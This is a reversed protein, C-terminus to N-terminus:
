PKNGPLVTPLVTNIKIFVQYGDNDNITNILDSFENRQVALSLDLGLRNAKPKKVRWTLDGSFFTSEDRMAYYPDELANNQNVGISINASLRDPIFEARTELSYLQRQTNVDDAIFHTEQLQWGLALYYHKSLQMSTNLMLSRTRSQPQWNTHDNLTDRNLAVSWNWTNHSFVTNINASRTSLDNALYGTPTYEDEMEVATAYWNVAPKGLFNFISGAKPEEYEQFGGGLVWQRTFTQAYDSNNDLNNNEDAISANWNWKDSSANVFTRLFEKDAPLFRNAISKFWTGIHQKEVGMSFDIPKTHKTAANFLVLASTAKDDQADFGSNLGDFDYSSQANEVRIRMQKEFFLGDFIVNWAEGENVTSGYINQTDMTAFDAANAKGSIFGSSLVIHALSTNLPQYQWRAGNMRNESDSLGLGGDIGIRQNASASYFEVASHLGPLAVSSSIGRRQYGDSLLDTAAVVHDGMNLAVNGSTSSIFFSPIDAERGTLSLNADDTYAVSANAQTRWNQTALVAAYQGNAQIASDPSLGNNVNESAAVRHSLGVNLQGQLQAERFFATQQVEVQWYGLETVSGNKAFHVLRLEHKGNALPILPQYILKHQKKTTLATVDINDFELTLQNILSAELGAPLLITFAEGAQYFSGVNPGQIQANQENAALSSLSLVLFLPLFCANLLKNMYM